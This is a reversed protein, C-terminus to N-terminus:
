IEANVKFTTGAANVGLFRHEICRYTIATIVKTSETLEITSM